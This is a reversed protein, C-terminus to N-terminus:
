SKDKVIRSGDQIYLMRRPEECHRCTTRCMLYEESDYSYGWPLGLHWAMANVCRECSQSAFMVAEKYTWGEAILALVLDVPFSSEGSGVPEWVVEEVHSNEDVVGTKVLAFDHTKVEKWGHFRQLTGEPFQYIGNQQCYDMGCRQGDPLEYYVSLLGDKRIRPANARRLLKRIIRKLNEIMTTMVEQVNLGYTM